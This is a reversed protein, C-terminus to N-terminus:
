IHTEIKRKSLSKTEGFENASVIMSHRPTVVRVYYRTSSGREQFEYATQIIGSSFKANISKTVNELCTIEKLQKELESSKEMTTITCKRESAMKLSHQLPSRCMRSIMSLAGHFMPSTAM